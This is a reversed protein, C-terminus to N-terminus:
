GSISIGGDGTSSSSWFTGGRPSTEVMTIALGLLDVGGFNSPFPLMVVSTLFRRDQAISSIDPQPDSFEVGFLGLGTTM